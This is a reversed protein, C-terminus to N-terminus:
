WAADEQELPSPYLSPGEMDGRGAPSPQPSPEAGASFGIECGPLHGRLWAVKEASVRTQYLDLEKLRQLRALHQLGADTIGTGFLELSELSDLKAITELGADTVGTGSLGLHRLRGLDVLHVLGADTVRTRGLGLWALGTLGTLYKLGEDSVPTDDLALWVLDKNRALHRLADDDIRAGVLDLERLGSVGHLFALDVADAGSIQLCVDGRLPVRLTGRAETTVYDLWRAYRITGVAKDAPFSIQRIPAHYLALMTLAACATVLAVGTTIGRRRGTHRAFLLGAIGGMAACPAAVFLLGRPLALVYTDMVLPFFVAVSGCTIAVLAMSLCAWGAGSHRGVAPGRRPPAVAALMFLLAGLEGGLGKGLVPFMAGFFAGVIAGIVAAGLIPLPRRGAQDPPLERAGRLLFGAILFLVACVGAAIGTNPGVAPVEYLNRITPTGIFAGLFAGVILCGVAFFFGRL